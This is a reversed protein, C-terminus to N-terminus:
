NNDIHFIRYLSSSTNSDFDSTDGSDRNVITYNQQPPSKQMM